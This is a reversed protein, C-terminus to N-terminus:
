SIMKINEERIDNQHAKMMTRNEEQQTKMMMVLKELMGTGQKEEAVTDNQENDSVDELIVKIKKEKNNEKREQM